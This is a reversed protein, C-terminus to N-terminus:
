RMLSVYVLSGTTGGTYCSGVSNLCTYDSGHATRFTRQAILSGDPRTWTVQTDVFWYERLTSYYNYSNSSATYKYGSGIAATGSNRVAWYQWAGTSSNWKYIHRTVNIYQTGSYSPSRYVDTAGWELHQNQYYFGQAYTQLGYVSGAYGSSSVTALRNTKASSSSSDKTAGKVKTVQATQPELVHEPQGEGISPDPATSPPTSTSEQALADKELAAAAILAFFFALVAMLIKAKTTNKTIINTMGTM